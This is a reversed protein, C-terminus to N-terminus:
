LIGRAGSATRARATTRRGKRYRRGLRATRSAFAATGATLASRAIRTDFSSAVTGRASEPSTRRMEDATFRDHISPVIGSQGQESRPSPGGGRPSQVQGSPQGLRENTLSDRISGRYRPSTVPTSLIHHAFLSPFTGPSNSSSGRGGRGPSRSTDGRGGRGPAPSAM